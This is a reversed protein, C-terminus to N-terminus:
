EVLDSRRFNKFDDAEIAAAAVAAAQKGHACVPNALV